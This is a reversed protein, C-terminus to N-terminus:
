VRVGLIITICMCLFSVWFASRALVNSGHDQVSGLSLMFAIFSLWTGLTFTDFLLNKMFFGSILGVVSLVITLLGICTKKNMEM